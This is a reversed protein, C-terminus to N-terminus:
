RHRSALTIAMLVPEFMKQHTKMMLTGKAIVYESLSRASVATMKFEHVSIPSPLSITTSNTL